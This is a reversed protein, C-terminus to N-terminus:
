PCLSLKALDKPAVDAYTLTAYMPKESSTQLRVWMNSRRPEEGASTDSIVTRGTKQCTATAVERDPFTGTAEMDSAASTVGAYVKLYRASSGGLANFRVPVGVAASSPVLVTPTPPAARSVVVVVLVVLVVLIVAAVAGAWARAGLQTAPMSTGGTGAPCDPSPFTSDDQTAPSVVADATSEPRSRESAGEQGQPPQPPPWPEGYRASGSDTVADVAAWDELLRDAGPTDSCAHVIKSVTNRTPFTEGRRVTKVTGYAVGAAKALEKLSGFGAKGRLADLRSGFEKKARAVEPPEDPSQNTSGYTM